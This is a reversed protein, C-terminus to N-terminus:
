ETLYISTHKRSPFVTKLFFEEETEVYPVVYAYNNIELVFMRQHQYQASPNPIDALVRGDDIAIVCDEFSINGRSTDNRLVAAKEIDWTIRKM